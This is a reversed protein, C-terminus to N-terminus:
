AFAHGLLRETTALEIEEFLGEAAFFEGLSSGVHLNTAAQKAAKSSNRM